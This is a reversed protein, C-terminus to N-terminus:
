GAPMSKRMRYFVGALFTNSNGSELHSLLTESFHLLKGLPVCSGFLFALSTFDPKLSLGSIKKDIVAHLITIIGFTSDNM